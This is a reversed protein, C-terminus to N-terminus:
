IQLENEYVEQLKRTISKICLIELCRYEKEMMQRKLEKLCDMIKFKYTGGHFSYSMLLVYAACFQRSVYLHSNHDIMM